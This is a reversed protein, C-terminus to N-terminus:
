RDSGDEETRQRARARTRREYERRGYAARRVADETELSAGLAGAVTGMSTSLWVLQLYDTADAPHGLVSSLYEPTIVAAAALLTIGFLLLYWCTVGILLTIVTTVNYLSATESGTRRREWLGNGLILWGVMMAVAVASILLLRGTSLADAMQWISSYFVGFAAAAAAAAIARSLGAVLRWPANDRVMAAVLRFRGRLGSLVVQEIGPETAVLRITRGLRAPPRGWSARLQLKESALVGVLHVLVRRTHSRQRLWSIAPLSALAVGERTSIDAVVPGTRNHRPLDTLCVVLDWEEQALWEGAHDEIPIRGDAEVRIPDTVARVDWTVQDTVERALADPLDRALRRALSSPAGPDAVLGVVVRDETM